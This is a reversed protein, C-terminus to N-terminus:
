IKSLAKRLLDNLQERVLGVGKTGAERVTTEALALGAALRLLPEIQEPSPGSFNVMFPHVLSLRINLIRESSTDIPEKDSFSLWDGISPDTTLEIQIKWRTNGVYLEIVRQTSATVKPLDQPPKDDHIEAQVLENLVPEIEEKIVKATSDLATKAGRTLDIAKARNVRRNEAQDLLPLPAKDLEKKLEELFIEEYEDWQFGDKTHSVEFGEVHLEGFLRQYTFSNAKRFIYEPRYGEDASGQILRDRRFLAFGADSTSAVERLAAFGQVQFGAGFPLYIDKKWLIPDGDEQDHYPANLIAPEKYTLVDGNVRLVMQGERIFIRYISALHEKVKGITRGQLPSHLSRIVLETYHDNLQVPIEQPDLSEVSDRVISDVDFSITREIAEGLASTRVSWNNGFWCAASKMGVGFEALGSQDPPIAAAKFARQYDRSHIGGANDRIILKSGNANDVTIDVRLRFDEGEIIELTDKNVLFSQLANDVFEALAYWPKYNLHRFVSLVSVGPRINVSTVQDQENM